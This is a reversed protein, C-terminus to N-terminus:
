YPQLTNQGSGSVMCFRFYKIKLLINKTKTINQNTKQNQNFGMLVTITTQKTNKALVQFLESHSPTIKNLLSTFYKYIYLNITKKNANRNNTSDSAPAVLTLFLLFSDFAQLLM